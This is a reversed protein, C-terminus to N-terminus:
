GADGCAITKRSIEHEGRRDPKRTVTALPINERRSSAPTSADPGCSKATRQCASEDTAGGADVADWGADTVIAIRGEHPSSPVHMVRIVSETLDFESFGFNTVPRNGTFNTMAPRTSPM